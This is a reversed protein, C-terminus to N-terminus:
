GVAPAIDAGGAPQQVHHQGAHRGAFAIALPRQSEHPAARFTALAGGGQEAGQSAGSIGTVTLTLPMAFESTCLPLLPMEMAVVGSTLLVGEGPPGTGM